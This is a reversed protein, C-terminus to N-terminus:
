RIMHGKIEVVHRRCCHEQIDFFAKSVVHCVPNSYLNDSNSKETLKILSM